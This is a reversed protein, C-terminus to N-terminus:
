STTENTPKLKYEIEMSVVEGGVVIYTKWVDGCKIGITAGELLIPINGAETKIIPVNRNETGIRDFEIIEMVM